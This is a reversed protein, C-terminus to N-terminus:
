FINIDIENSILKGKWVNNSLEDGTTNIYIAQLRYNGVELKDYLDENNITISFYIEQMPKLVKFDDKTLPRPQILPPLWRLTKMSDSIINIYVDPGPFSFRTNITKIENSINKITGKIAIQLQPKLEFNNKGIDILLILEKGSLTTNNNGSYQHNLAIITTISITSLLLAVSLIKVRAYWPNIHILM